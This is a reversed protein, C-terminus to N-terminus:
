TQRVYQINRLLSRDKTVKINRWVEGNPGTTDQTIDFPAAIVAVPNDFFYFNKDKDVQWTYQCLSTLRDLVENVPIYRFELDGVVVGPDAQRIWTLGEPVLITENIHSLISNITGYQAALYKANLIRRSLTRAYNICTVSAYLMPLNNETSLVISEVSGGFTKKWSATDEDYFYQLVEQGVTPYYVGAEDATDFSSSGQFGLQEETTISGALVYEQRNVGGIFTAFNSSANTIGLLVPPPVQISMQDPSKIGAGIDVAAVLSISAGFAETSAIGATIPIPVSVYATGFAEVSPISPPEIYRILEVPTGFAEASAIGTGVNLNVTIFPTGFAEDSVIGSPITIATPSFVNYPFSAILGKYSPYFLSQEDSFLNYRDGDSVLKRDFIAVAAVSIAGPNTNDTRLGIRIDNASDNPTFSTADNTFQTGQNPTGQNKWHEISSASATGDHSWLWIAWEGAVVVNDSTERGVFGVGNARYVGLRNGNTMYSLWGTLGKTILTASSVYTDIRVWMAVSIGTLNNLQPTRAIVLADDVGDLKYAPGWPSAVITPASIVSGFKNNVQDYIVGDERMPVASVCYKALPHQQNFKSFRNLKLPM